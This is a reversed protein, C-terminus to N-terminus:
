LLPPLLDIFTSPPPPRYFHLSSLLLLISSLLEVLACSCNLYSSPMVLQTTLLYAIWYTARFTKEYDLMGM